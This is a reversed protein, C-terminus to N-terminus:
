QAGCSDGKKLKSVVYGQYKFVMPELLRQYNCLAVLCGFFRGFLM